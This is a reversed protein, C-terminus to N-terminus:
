AEPACSVAREPPAAFAAPSSLLGRRWRRPTFLAARPYDEFMWRAFSDRTWRSLDVARLSAEAVRPRALLRGLLGALRHDAQLSRRASEEYHRGVAGAPGGRAVAAAALRGTELAQGIGEGTLPDTAAAADGVFLVRGHHLVTDPLRAPIPWARHPSEPSTVGLVDRIHPRDLLGAWIRNMDHGSLGGERVIGFGVNVRGDPRPFSWAYGPLLDRDFWVWLQRSRPGDAALYQRMAHWDGRYGQVARGVAKRVPSWMGDAAVVHRASITGRSTHLEVRGARTEEELGEFRTDQVVEIGLDTAHEVLAADLDRRRVVASRVGPGEPLRLGIERGRPSRLSIEHVPQWSAVARPDFGLLELERLALATLGDGCCKDRPFTAKDIVTVSLGARQATVAAAIGAPGAGVVALDVPPM